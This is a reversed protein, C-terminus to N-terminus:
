HGACPHTYFHHTSSCTYNQARREGTPPAEHKCRRIWSSLSGARALRGRLRLGRFYDAFFFRVRRRDIKLCPLEAPNEKEATGSSAGDRVECPPARSSRCYVE